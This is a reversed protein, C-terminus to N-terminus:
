YMSSIVKVDPSLRSAKSLSIWETSIGLVFTNTMQRSVIHNEKSSFLVNHYGIRLSTGGIRIDAMLQNDLKFYNGWWAGHVLGSRNGLYIEYYLEGYDPAFFVGTVPLTPQYKLIVPLRGIKIKWAVYGTANVTWSAKASVPNNGNRTNYLAGVDIGTSGGFGFTLGPKVTWRRMMGWSFDAGLNWMTSNRAPNQTRDGGISTQLRMIWRDPDFKMAQSREYGVGVHWGDYHLPSLYTDCLRSAGCEIMYSSVVPRVVEQSFAAACWPLVSILFVATKM